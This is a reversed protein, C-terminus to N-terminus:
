TTELMQKLKKGFGGEALLDLSLIMMGSETVLIPALTKASHSKNFFMVHESETFRVQQISSSYWLTKKPFLPNKERM